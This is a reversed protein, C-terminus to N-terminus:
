SAAAGDLSIQNRGARKATYMAADARELLAELSDGAKAVAVGVSLTVQGISENGDPRCIRGQAVTGRIQEAVAAAGSLTTQPLLVAFEEGGLRAAVDRGKISSRLVHAVARIVKDGLVHGYTDNVVKFHDIDALLLASGVLGAPERMLDEVARELGRRNKLGTLSDLLAESQARRLSETLSNVEHTRVRLRSSLDSTAAQMKQTAKLMDGVVELLAAPPLPESLRKAHTQLSESFEAAQESATAASRATDELLTRLQQQLREFAEMDRAAIHQAYLRWVDAESLANNTTLRDDLVRSLEPNMGACHEYWLAYSLPHFAALQRAMLPLALRLIETSREKNELYRM